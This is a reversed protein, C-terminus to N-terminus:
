VYFIVCRYEITSFLSFRNRGMLNQLTISWTTNLLLWLLLLLHTESPLNNSYDVTLCPWNIPNQYFVSAIWEINRKLLLKFMVNM